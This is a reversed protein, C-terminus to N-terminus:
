GKQTDIPHFGPDLPMEPSTIVSPSRNDDPLLDDFFKLGGANPTIGSKHTDDNWEALGYKVFIYQVSQFKGESFLKAAPTFNDHTMPTGSLVARALAQLQEGTAVGKFVSLSLGGPYDPIGSITPTEDTESEDTAPQGSDPHFGRLIMLIVMVLFLIIAIMVLLTGWQGLAVKLSYNNADTQAKAAVFTRTPSADQWAREKADADAQAKIQEANANAQAINGAQITVNIVAIEKAQQALTATLQLVALNAAQVTNIAAQQTGLANASQVAAAAQDRDAQASKALAANNLVQATLMFDVTPSPVPSPTLTESPQSIAPAAMAYAQGDSACGTLLLCLM